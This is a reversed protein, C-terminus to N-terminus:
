NAFYAKAAQNYAYLAAVLDKLSQTYTGNVVNYCYKMPSHTITADSYGECSVTVTFNQALAKAAIDPIEVYGTYGNGAKTKYTLETEGWKFTVKETTKVNFYLRLGTDSELMLTAGVYEAVGEIGKGPEYDYGSLIATTLVDVKKDDAELISNAPADTNYQFHEQASTGYNLMVKILAALENGKGQKGAATAYAEPEQLIVKAYSQVNYEFVESQWGGNNTVVQAKITGTMEKAAVPCTFRYLTREMGNLTMTKAVGNSVSLEYVTNGVDPLTFVVKATTDNRIDESLDMYFEVGITGDLTLSYAAVLKETEVTYLSFSASSVEVYKQGDETKKIAYSGMLTGEHYVKATNAMVGSHVPLRFTVAAALDTIEARKEGSVVVPTVDYTMSTPVDDAVSVATLKVELTTTVEADEALGLDKKANAIIEQNAEGELGTVVSSATNGTIDAVIEDKVEETVTGEVEVIGTKGCVSCTGATVNHWDRIELAADLQALCDTVAVGTDASLGALAARFEVALARMEECNKGYLLTASGSTITTLDNTMAQAVTTGEAVNEDTCYQDLLDTAAGSSYTEIAYPITTYVTIGGSTLKYYGAGLNETAGVIAGGFVSAEQTLSSGSAIETAGYIISSVDSVEVSVAIVNAKTSTTGIMLNSRGKKGTIVVNELYTTTATAGGNIRVTKFDATGGNFLGLYYGCDGSDVTLDMLKVNEQAGVGILAKYESSLNNKNALGNTSNNFTSSDGTIVTKDKGAGKIIVGPLAIDQRNNVVLTGESILILGGSTVGANKLLTVANELASGNATDVAGVQEFYKGDVETATQTAVQKYVTVAATTEAQLSPEHTETLGTKENYLAEVAALRQADGSLQNYINELGEQDGTEVLVICVDAVEEDTMTSVDYEAAYAGVPVMTVALVIAAALCLLRKLRREM